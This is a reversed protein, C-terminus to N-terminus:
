SSYVVKKDTKGGSSYNQETFNIKGDAQIRVISSARTGYNPSAIFLPSLMKELAIGVGTDPLLSEDALDDSQLLNLLQTEQEAFSNVKNSIIRSFATVGITVKPWPTNLLHNSLGYVGPTLQKPQDTSRNSYYYLSSRDGVLLNFGAYQNQENQVQQLYQEPSCHSNLFETTLAGRSQPYQHRDPKRFNTVAAFRGAKTIGLWTGHQQLDKGAFIQDNSQWVHAYQSPRDYFEDRNAAVVLQDKDDPSWAFLILCM